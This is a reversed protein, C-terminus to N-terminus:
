VRPHKLAKSGSLASRSICLNPHPGPPPRGAVLAGSSEVQGWAKGPRPAAGEGGRGSGAQGCPSPLQLSPHM